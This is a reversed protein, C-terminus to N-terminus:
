VFLQHIRDATLESQAIEMLQAGGRDALEHSYDLVYLFGGAHLEHMHLYTFGTQGGFLHTDLGLVLGEKVAAAGMVGIDDANRLDFMPSRLKETSKGIDVTGILTDQRRHSRHLASKGKIHHDGLYVILLIGNEEDIGTERHLLHLATNYAGLHLRNVKDIMAAFVQTGFQLPMELRSADCGHEIGIRVVGGPHTEGLFFQLDDTRKRGLIINNHQLIQSVKIHVEAIRAAAHRVM